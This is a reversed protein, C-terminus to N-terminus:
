IPPFSSLSPRHAICPEVLLLDGIERTVSGGLIGVRMLCKIDKVSGPLAAALCGAIVLRDGQIQCLRRKIKRETKETVACTNVIVIDAQALSAPLHGMELLAAEAEKSNGLNATCGYTEIYFKM